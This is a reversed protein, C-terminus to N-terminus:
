EKIISNFIVKLIMITNRYSKGDISMNETKKTEMGFIFFKYIQLVQKDRHKNFYLIKILNQLSKLCAKNFFRMALFVKKFEILILLPQIIIEMAQLIKTIFGKLLIQFNEEQRGVMDLILISLKTNKEIQKLIIQLLIDLLSFNRWKNCEM